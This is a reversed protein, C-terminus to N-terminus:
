KKGKKVMGGKAYTSFNLGKVAVDGGTRPARKSSMMEKPKNKGTGATVTSKSKMPPAPPKKPLTAM